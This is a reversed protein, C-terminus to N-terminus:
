DVCSSITAILQSNGPDINMVKSSFSYALHTWEDNTIINISNLLNFLSSKSLQNSWFPGNLPFNYPWGFCVAPDDLHQGRASFFVTKVGRSLCEYGLTSGFSIAFECSHLIFYSDYISSKQFFEFTCMTPNLINTYWEIEGSSIPDQNRLVIYLTKQNSFCWEGIYRIYKSDFSYYHDWM